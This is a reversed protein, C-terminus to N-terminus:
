ASELAAFVGLLRRELDEKGAIFELALQPVLVPVGLVSFDILPRLKMWDKATVLLADAGTCAQALRRVERPTVPAHDRAPQDFEIVGGAQCIQDRVGDAAAIGLRTVIRMGDISSITTEGDVDFREFGTWVHDCWAVPDRGHLMQIRDRLTQDVHKSHTVLVDTARSLSALPERLRGAPFVREANLPRRADILVVDLNRAVFRHQFGDDLVVVDCSPDTEVFAEIAGVRDPDALVPVGPLMREHEMAEDSLQPRGAGYGRLAVAPRHGHSQLLRVIWQVTPTKGTGGMTLNGVSIVPRGVDAVRDGRDFRRNRQAMAATYIKSALTTFPNM